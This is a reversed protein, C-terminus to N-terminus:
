PQRRHNMATRSVTELRTLEVNQGSCDPAYCKPRGPVSLSSSTWAGLEFACPGTTGCYPSANTVKSPDVSGLIEYSDRGKDYRGKTTTELQRPSAM